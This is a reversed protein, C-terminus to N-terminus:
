PASIPIIEMKFEGKRPEAQYLQVRPNRGAVLRRVLDKHEPKMQCGFIIGTLAETEFEYLGPGKENKEDFLVRWEKEYDWLNAKTFFRLKHLLERNNVNMCDLFRHNPYSQPYDIIRAAKFISKVTSFELCCGAHKDAYHSWMLINTSNETLCFLGITENQGKEAEKWYGSLKQEDLHVGERIKRDVEEALKEASFHPKAIRTFFERFEEETGEKYNTPRLRCDFPDNFEFPKAFHVVSRVITDLAYADIKRYKYLKEPLNM